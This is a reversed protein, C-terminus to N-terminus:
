VECLLRILSVITGNSVFQLIVPRLAERGRLYPLWTQADSVKEKNLTGYILDPQSGARALEQGDPTAIFSQGLFRM